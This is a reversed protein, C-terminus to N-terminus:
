PQRWWVQALAAAFLSPAMCAALYMPFQGLAVVGFGVIAPFCFIRAFEAREDNADSKRFSIAAVYMLAAIYLLFGPLGTEALVQLPDNHVEGFNLNGFISWEPFREDIELKHSMYRAEFGGPGVGTLPRERFMQFAVAYAPLRLSTAENLRGERVARAVGIARNRTPGYAALAIAALVLAAVIAIRMKHGRMVAVFSVMAVAMAGAATVSQAFFLGTLLMVAILAFLVRYKRFAISAAIAAVCPVILHAGVYNPNGLLGIAYFHGRPIQTLEVPSWIRFYQLVAFAANAMAPLLLACLPLFTGRAFVITLIFLIAYCAATLPAYRAVAPLLAVISVFTTWAVSAVALIVATRHRRLRERVAGDRLLLWAVSVGLTVLMAAQFFMAKSLRFADYIGPTIVLPTAAVALLVM